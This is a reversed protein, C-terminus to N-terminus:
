HPCRTVMRADPTYGTILRGEPGCVDQPAIKKLFFFGFFSKKPPRKLLSFRSKQSTTTSFISQAPSLIFVIGHEFRMWTTGEWKHTAAHGCETLWACHPQITFVSPPPPDPSESRAARLNPRIRPPGGGGNHTPVGGGKRTPGGGM